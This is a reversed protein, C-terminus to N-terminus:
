RAWHGTACVTSVNSLASTPMVPYPFVLMANCLLYTIVSYYPRCALMVLLSRPSLLLLIPSIKPICLQRRRFASCWLDCVARRLCGPAKVPSERAATARRAHGPQANSPYLRAQPSRLGTRTSEPHSPLSSRTDSRSGSCGAPGQFVRGRSGVSSRCSLSNLSSFSGVAGFAPVSRPSWGGAWPSRRWSRAGAARQVTPESRGTDM